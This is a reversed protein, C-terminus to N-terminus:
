IDSIIGTTRGNVTTQLTLFPLCPTGLSIEQPVSGFGRTLVGLGSKNKYLYLTQITTAEKNCTGSPGRYSAFKVWATIKGKPFSLEVKAAVSGDNSIYGSPVGLRQFTLERVCLLAYM